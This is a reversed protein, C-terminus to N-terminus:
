AGGRQFFQAACGGIAAVLAIVAPLLARGHRHELEADEAMQKIAVARAEELSLTGHSTVLIAYTRTLFDDM